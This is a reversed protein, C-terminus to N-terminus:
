TVKERRVHDTKGDCSKSFVKGDESFQKLAMMLFLNVIYIYSKFDRNQKWLSNTLRDKHLYLTIIAAKYYIQM